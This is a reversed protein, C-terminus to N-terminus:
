DNGSFKIAFPEHGGNRTPPAAKASLAPRPISRRGGGCSGGMGGRMPYRSGVRSCTASGGRPPARTPAPRAPRPARSRKRHPDAVRHQRPGAVFGNVRRDAPRRASGSRRGRFRPRKSGANAVPPAPARCRSGRDLYRLVSSGPHRCRWRRASCGHRTQRGAAHRELFADPAHQFPQAEAALQPGPLRDGPVTAPVDAVGGQPALAQIGRRAAWKSRRCRAHSGRAPRGATRRSTEWSRRDRRGQRSCHATNLPDRAIGAAIRACGSRRSKDPGPSRRRHRVRRLRM